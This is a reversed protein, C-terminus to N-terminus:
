LPPRISAEFPSPDVWLYFGQFSLEFGQFYLDPLMCTDLSLVSLLFSLKLAKIPRLLSIRCIRAVTFDSLFYNHTELHDEACIELESLNEGPRSLKLHAESTPKTSRISIPEKAGDRAVEPSSQSGGLCHAYLDTLNIKYKLLLIDKENDLHQFIFGYNYYNWSHKSTLTTRLSTLSSGPSVRKVQAKAHKNSSGPGVNFM